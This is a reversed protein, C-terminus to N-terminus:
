PGITLTTTSAGQASLVIPSAMGALTSHSLHPSFATMRTARVFSFGCASICRTSGSPQATELRGSLPSSNMVQGLQGGVSTVARGTGAPSGAEAGVMRGAGGPADDLYHGLLRALSGSSTLYMSGRVTAYLEPPSM